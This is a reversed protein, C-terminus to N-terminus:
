IKRTNFLASGKKQCSAAEEIEVAFGSISSLEWKDTKINSIDVKLNFM